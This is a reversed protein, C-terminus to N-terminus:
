PLTQVLIETVKHVSELLPTYGVTLLLAAGGAAGASCVAKLSRGRRDDPEGHDDILRHVRDAIAGGGVLTSIPETIAAAPMRRAVKVLASALALRTAPSRSISAGVDASHEAAAAWKQELAHAAPMWRLVDPAGRMALRKLNDWARYHGVEHEISAALEDPTLTDILGRTVILRPRLIGALAMLAEPAEIRFAPLDVGAVVLPEAMRTWAEARRAARWWAVGGRVLGSVLVSGAVAALSTLTIDFDEVFNRPEFRWYSPLFIAAVFAISAVAPLMRLALLWSASRRARGVVCAVVLSLVVNIALFWFLALVTGHVFYTV